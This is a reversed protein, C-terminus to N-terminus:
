FHVRGNLKPLIYWRSTWFFHAIVLGLELQLLPSQKWTRSGSNKPKKAAKPLRLYFFYHTVKELRMYSLRLIADGCFEVHTLCTQKKAMATSTQM